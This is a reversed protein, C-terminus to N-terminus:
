MNFVLGFCGLELSHAVSRALFVVGKSKKSSMLRKLIIKQWVTVPGMNEKLEFIM